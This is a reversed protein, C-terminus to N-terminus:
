RDHDSVDQAYSKDRKFCFHLLEVPTVSVAGSLIAAARKSPALDYHPHGPKDQFWSRKLGIKEAVQHLESLDGDTAMHCYLAGRFPFISEDVFVTM